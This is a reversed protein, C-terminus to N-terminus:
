GGCGGCGCGGCGGGGCGGGGCGGDGGGGDSSSKPLALGALSGGLDAFDWQGLVNAGFLAVAWTMAGFGDVSEEGARGTELARHQAQRYALLASGQASVVLSKKTLVAVILSVGTLVMLWGVPYGESLGLGIKFGGWLPAAYRCYPDFHSPGSVLGNEVMRAELARLQYGCEREIVRLTCGIRAAAIVAAELPHVHGPLEALFRLRPPTGELEVSGVDVLSAVAAQVARLRGGALYALEYVDPEPADTAQDPAPARGYLASLVLGAGWLAVFFGLSPGGHLNWPATVYCGSLVLGAVLAAAFRAAGVAGAGLRPRPVVWHVQTNVRRWDLDSGFRQTAPPWIDRPPAQGFLRQYSACTREYQGTFIAKACLGGDTPGHHLKTGLVDRCLVDWYSHTYVLHLHWAQDVHESPTVPHGAAVALLLFRKYEAVVRASFGLSWGNERALRQSFSFATGPPDFSFRALRSRLASIHADEM